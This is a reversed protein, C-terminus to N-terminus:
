CKYDGSGCEHCYRENQLTWIWPDEKRDLGSTVHTSWGSNVKIINQEHEGKTDTM